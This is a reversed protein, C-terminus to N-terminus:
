FDEPASWEFDAETLGTPPTNERVGAVFRALLDDVAEEVTAGLGSIGEPYRTTPHRIAVNPVALLDGPDRELVKIKIKAFPFSGDLWAELQAVVRDIRRIGDM